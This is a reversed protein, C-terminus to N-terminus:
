VTYSDIYKKNDMLSVREAVEIGYLRVPCGVSKVGVAHVQISKLPSEASAGFATIEVFRLLM